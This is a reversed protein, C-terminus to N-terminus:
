TSQDVAVGYGKDFNDALVDLLTVGIRLLKGNFGEGVNRRLVWIGSSTHDTKDIRELLVFVVEYKLGKFDNFPEINLPHIFMIDIQSTM